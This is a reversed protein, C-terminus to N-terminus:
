LVGATAETSMFKCAAQYDEPSLKFKLCTWVAEPFSELLEQMMRAFIRDIDDQCTPAFNPTTTSVSNTRYTGPNNVPDFAYFYHCSLVITRSPYPWCDSPGPVDQISFGFRLSNPDNFQESFEPAIKHKRYLALLFSSDTQIVQM